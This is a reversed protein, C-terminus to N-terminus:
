PFMGIPVSVNVLEGRQFSKGINPVFNGLLIGIVMSLFIWVALYRDLWGLSKFASVNKEPPTAPESGTEIDQAASQQQPEEKTDM